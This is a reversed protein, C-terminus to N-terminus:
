TIPIFAASTTTGVVQVPMGKKVFCSFRGPVGGLNAPHGPGPGIGIYGAQGSANYIWVFGDSPCTYATTTLTVRAGITSANLKKIEDAVTCEVWYMESGPAGPAVGICDVLCKWLKNEQICYDGATYQKRSDYADSIIDQSGGVPIAGAIDFDPPNPLGGDNTWSIVGTSSVAPSFVAGADGKDGPAGPAGNLGNHISISKGDSFNVINVGGPETSPTISTIAVSTGDKGDSGAPGTINRSQVEPMTDGSSTWSLVGNESVTPIYYGGPAGDEAGGIEGNEIKQQMDNLAQGVFDYVAKVSPYQNTSGKIQETVEQIKNSQNESNINSVTVATINVGDNSTVYISQTKLVGDSLVPAVFRMQRPNSEDDIMTCRHERNGHIMLVFNPSNLLADSLNKYTLDEGTGNIKFSKDGLYDIRIKETKKALETTVDSANAKKNLETELEAAADSVSKIEATVVKNQVPNTSTESLSEDITLDNTVLPLQSAPVKGDVLDAKGSLLENVSEADAKKALESNVTTNDAKKGLETDVYTKEVKGSLATEVESANAKAALATAMASADAKKALETEVDSANAKKDLEAEIDPIDTIDDLAQGVFDYVAKVSPYQNTSGKIQETIEQVKNSQNESNINSIAVNTIAIGDNSTIYISQTKLVGDSLIPAVFRMQRPNSEEDIMTCRHERNGHIMLVFNPSDLLLDRIKKYTLDEGSSNIKFSKNGLYDIRVKETKSDLGYDQSNVVIPSGIIAGM